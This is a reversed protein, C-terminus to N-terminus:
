RQMRPELSRRRGSSTGYVEERPPVPLHHRRRTPEEQEGGGTKATVSITFIAHSRSSVANMNTCEVVRIKSGFDLLQIIQEISSVANETLYPVFVGFKPHQRIELNLVKGGPQTPRLLDRAKENYIELYSASVQFETTAKEREINEFM